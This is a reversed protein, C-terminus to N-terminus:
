QSTEMYASIFAVAVQVVIGDGYGALRMIRAPCGQALPL